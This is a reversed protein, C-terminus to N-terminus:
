SRSWALHLLAAVRADIADPSGIALSATLRESWSERGRAVLRLDADVPAALGLMVGGGRQPRVAAFQFERSFASFAKRQTAIVGELGSVAASIAAFLAAQAPDVWLTDALADPTDWSTESPFAANLVMSAQNQGLGHVAKMWALQKRRGTEPCARALEAWQALSRGSASELGKRVSAFWKAQRATLQAPDPM